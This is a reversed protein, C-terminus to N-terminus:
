LSPPAPFTSHPPPWLSRCISRPSSAPIPSSLVPGVIVGCTSFPDSANAYKFITLRDDDDDDDDDDRETTTPRRRRDPLLLLSSPQLPGLPQPSLDM